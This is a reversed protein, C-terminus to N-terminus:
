RYLLKRGQRIYLGRRPASTRQGMLNYVAAGDSPEGDASLQPVATDRPQADLTLTCGWFVSPHVTVETGDHRVLVVSLIKASYPSTQRYQLTIRSATPGLAAASLVVTTAAASVHQYGEASSGYTKVQLYDAPPATQLELRLAAYQSLDLAGDSYLNLEQWQGTYSVTYTVDYDDITPYVGAFSDGHCAKVIAEALDPESFAPVTRMPGDSLGMWYFTAMGLSTAKQVFYDAFAMMSAHNDRYDASSDSTGWEGIIVPAGKAALHQQLASFMDDLEAKASTLSSIDPYAHVQFILHGSTQDAPLQMQSLPDKLHANWTGAGSCAGYTNVVLNRQSNNGGTARVTNVFSQAYSNIAEYASAAVTADYKGQTNFSAFCWSSYSDLMENYGEFLLLEGYDRFETAIQQWLQEYRAKQATYVTMDAKLWSTYDNSDAGTDHHVNLICYLGQGVVYDVVERVRQMWAADVQGSADMHPYWTVPVRVAGFGAQRMMQMLEPRTVPQGWLTESQVVDAMRKGNAADLTNGLNWGVGMRSVATAATEFDSASAPLALSLMCGMM